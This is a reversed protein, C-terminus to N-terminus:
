PWSRSSSRRWSGRTTSCSASSSSPWCRRAAERAPRASLPLDLGGRLAPVAADDTQRRGRRVSPLTSRREDGAGGDAGASCTRGSVRSESRRPRGFIRRGCRRSRSSSARRAGRRGRDPRQGDRRRAGRVGRRHEHRAHHDRHDARRSPTRGHGGDDSRRGALRPRHDARRRDRDTAGHRAGVRGRAEPASRSRPQVSLPGIRQAAARPRAAAGTRRVVEEEPVGLNRPGFEIEEFVTRRLDPPRPEPLLLRHDLGPRRDDRQAIDTGDVAVRGREPRCSVTSTSPLPRRARATRASWPSSSAARTDDVSVDELAHPSAPYRFWVHEAAVAATMACPGSLCRADDVFARRHRRCCATRARRGHRDRERRSPARRDRCPPRRERLVEAPPRRVPGPGARPDGTPWRRRGARRARAGRRARRLRREGDAAGILEFIEARGQPDLESTPEDLILLRPRMVIAAAIAVRQKQGGSLSYPFATRFGGLRVFELAEDIRRNIEERPM